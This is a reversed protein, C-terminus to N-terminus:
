FLLSYKFYFQKNFLFIKVLDPIHNDTDVLCFKLPIKRESLIGSCSDTFSSRQGSISVFGAFFFFLIILYFVRFYYFCRYVVFNFNIPIVEGTRTKNLKKKGVIIRSIYGTCFNINLFKNHQSLPRFALGLQNHVDNKMMEHSITLSERSLFFM